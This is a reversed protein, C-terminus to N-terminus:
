DVDWGREEYYAKAGPHLAIGNVVKKGARRPDFYKLARVAEGLDLSRECLAKTLSYAVADDMSTSVLLVQQSGVTRIARPQGKWTNPEVTVYDYGMDVMKELTKDALQFSVMDHEECLKTTNEQGAGIHDITMEYFDDALAAKIGYSGTKLVDGGWSRIDDFSVGLVQLVLEASMEGLSGDKKIVLKVPYKKEVLEELSTIRTADVFKKTAMVSIFDHGLGGGLSAVNQVPPQGDIGTEVAWKVPAANSLVLDCQGAAVLQPSGVSGPSKSSISIDSGQPLGKILVSELVATYNYSATGIEQAAFSLKVPETLLAPVAEATGTIVSALALVAAAAKVASLM